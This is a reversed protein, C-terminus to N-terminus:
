KSSKNIATEEALDCARDTSSVVTVLGGIIHGLKNVYALSADNKILDKSLDHLGKSCVLLGLSAAIYCVFIEGREAMILEDKKIVRIVTNVLEGAGLTFTPVSLGSAVFVLAAKGAKSANNLADQYTFATSEFCVLMYALFTIIKKNMM